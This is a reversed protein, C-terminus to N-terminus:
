RREIEAAAGSTLTIVEDAAPILVDLQSDHFDRTEHHPNRLDHVTYVLPRSTDRLATVWADLEAPTRTDFGFHLHALDFGDHTRVWDPELMVPPWWKSVASRTPADPDPDDLRQIRAAGPTPEAPA